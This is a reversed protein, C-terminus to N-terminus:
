AAGGTQALIEALHLTRVPSGARHLGGYIQMLCSNDLATVVEAGTQLVCADKEGLMALSVDANKVAFTGGFGCCQDKNPLERLEVGRVARLLRIPADGVHLM